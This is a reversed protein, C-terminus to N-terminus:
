GKRGARCVREYQYKPDNEKAMDEKGTRQFKEDSEVIFNIDLLKM